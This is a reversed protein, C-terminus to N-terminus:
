TLALSDKPDVVITGIHVVCLTRSERANVDVAGVTISVDVEVLNDSAPHDSLRLTLAQPTALFHKLLESGANVRGAVRFLPTGSLVLAKFDCVSGVLVGFVHTACSGSFDVRVHVGSPDFAAAVAGGWVLRSSSIIYFDERFLFDRLM